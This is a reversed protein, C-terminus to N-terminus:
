TVWDAQVWPGCGDANFAVDAAQITVEIRPAFSAFNNDIIEGNPGLREWYCNEVGVVAYTGPTAQGPQAGVEYPQSLIALPAGPIRLTSFTPLLLDPLWEGTRNHHSIGHSAMFHVVYRWDGFDPAPEEMPPLGDLLAQAASQLRAAMDTFDTVGDRWATAIEVAIPGLAAATAEATLETPAPGAPGASAASPPPEPSLLETIREEADRLDALAQTRDAAVQGARVQADAALQQADALESAAAVLQEQLDGITARGEARASEAAAARAGAADLDTQTVGSSCGALLVLLVIGAVKVM